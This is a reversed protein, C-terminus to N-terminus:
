ARLAVFGAASFDDDFTLVNSIRQSRMLAFSTADV